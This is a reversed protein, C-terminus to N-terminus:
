TLHWLRWKRRCRFLSATAEVPAGDNTLASGTVLHAEFAGDSVETIM